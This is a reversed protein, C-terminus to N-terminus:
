RQCFSKKGEDHDFNYSKKELAIAGKVPIRVKWRSFLIQGIRWSPSHRQKGLM